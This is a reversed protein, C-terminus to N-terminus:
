GILLSRRKTRHLYRTLEALANESHRSEKNGLSTPIGIKNRFIVNENQIRVQAMMPNNM